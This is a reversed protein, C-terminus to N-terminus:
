GTSLDTSLTSRVRGPRAADKARAEDMARLAAADMEVLRFISDIGEEDIGSMGMLDRNCKRIECPWCTEPPLGPGPLSERISDLMFPRGCVKCTAPRSSIAM